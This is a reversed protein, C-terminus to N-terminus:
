AGVKHLAERKGIKVRIVNEALKATGHAPIQNLPPGFIGAIM